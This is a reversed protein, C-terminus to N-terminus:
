RANPVRNSRKGHELRDIANNFGHPVESAPNLGTNNIVQLITFAISAGVLGEFIPETQALVFMAAAAAAFAHRRSIGLTVSVLIYFLIPISLFGGIQLFSFFLNHAFTLPAGFRDVTVSELTAWGTGWLPSSLFQSWSIDFLEFRASINASDGGQGDFRASNITSLLFATLLPSVLAATRVLFRRLPTKGYGWLFVILGAGLSLVAGRSTTILASALGIGAALLMWGSARNMVQSRGLAAFSAIVLVGGVYNSGGWSAAATSHFAGASGAARFLMFMQASSSLVFLMLGLDVIGFSGPDAASWSRAIFFGVLVGCFFNTFAAAASAPNFATFVPIMLLVAALIPGGTRAYTGSKRLTGPLNLNAIVYQFVLPILLFQAPSLLLKGEGFSLTWVPGVALSALTAAALLRDLGSM